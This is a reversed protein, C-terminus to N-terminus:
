RAGNKSKPAFIPASNRPTSGVAEAGQANLKKACTPGALAKVAEAHLRAIIEPATKAPCIAREL